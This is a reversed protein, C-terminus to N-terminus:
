VRKWMEELAGEQVNHGGHHEEQGLVGHHVLIVQGAHTTEESSGGWHAPVGNLLSYLPQGAVRGESLTPPRYLELQQIHAKINAQLKQTHFM